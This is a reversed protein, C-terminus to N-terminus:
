RTLIENLRAAVAEAHTTIAMHGAEIESVRWGEAAAEAATTEFFPFETFRVYDRGCHVPADYQAIDAFGKLPMPRLREVIKRTDATEPLGLFTSDPPQIYEPAEGTILSGFVDRLERHKGFLSQGRQLMFGDLVVLHSVLDPRAAAVEAAVVAGYSHGILAINENDLFPLTELIDAVHEALGINATGLHRREALATLTPAHPEFGFRMLEAQLPRWCWGGLWAGHILIISPLTM